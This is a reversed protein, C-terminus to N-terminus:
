HFKTQNGPIEHSKGEPQTLIAISCPWKYHIKGLLAHHKEMYNNSRKGSPQRSKIEIVM